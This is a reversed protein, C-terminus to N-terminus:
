QDIMKELKSRVSSHLKSIESLTTVAEIEITSLQHDYTEKTDSNKFRIVPNSDAAFPAINLYGTYVYEAISGGSLVDHVPEYYNCTMSKSDVNDSAVIVEDFFLWGSKIFGLQYDPSTSYKSTASLYPVVCVTRSIEDLGKYYITTEKEVTDIRVDCKSILEALSSCDNLINSLRVSETLEGIELLGTLFEALEAYQCSHFYAMCTDAQESTLSSKVPITTEIIEPQTEVPATTVGGTEQAEVQTEVHTTQSDTASEVITTNGCGALLLCVLLLLAIIKKM